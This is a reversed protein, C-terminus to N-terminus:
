ILFSLMQEDRLHFQATIAMAADALVRSRTLETLTAAMDADRLRSEAAQSNLAVTGAVQLASSLGNM